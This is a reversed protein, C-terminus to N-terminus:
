KEKPPPLLWRGIIIGTFLFAWCVGLFMWDAKSM